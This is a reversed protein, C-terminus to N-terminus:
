EIGSIDNQKSTGAAPRKRFLGVLHALEAPEFFRLMLITGVFFILVFSRTAMVPVPLGLLIQYLGYSAGTVVAIIGLRRYEYPVPYFRRAILFVSVVMVAYGVLSAWAAGLIGMSPIVLINMGINIAAGLGPSIPLLHTKKHIYIGPVFLAYLGTFVYALLVIPVISIGSWYAPHILHHHFIEIRVIVDIFLSVALFTFMMFLFFYTTVRSFIAKADPERANSLFFPRWAYDFMSVVLMMFIGLRYNASYIGVATDTTMARLIPRDVVQLAIGAIGAPIAPTGFRLLHRSIESSFRFSFNKLIVPLLLVTTFVSSLLGSLFVGKLGLKMTVLFLINLVLNLCIAAIRVGAFSWPKKQLRLAAFPILSLSDSFLIGVAYLIVSEDGPRAVFSSVASLNLLILLSFILGIVMILSWAAGFIGRDSGLENSSAFKFYATEMGCGYLINFFAIYSYVNAVVGYDSTSLVNVYLPLLLFSLFRGFITSIGYVATEFGLRKIKELM